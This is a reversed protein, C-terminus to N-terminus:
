KCASRRTRVKPGRWTRLWPKKRLPVTPASGYLPYSTSLSNILWMGRRRIFSFAWVAELLEPSSSEFNHQYEIGRVRVYARDGEIWWDEIDRAYGPRDADFFTWGHRRRLFAADGQRLASFWEALTSRLQAELNTAGVAFVPQRPPSHPRRPPTSSDSTTAPSGAAGAARLETEEWQKWWNDFQNEWQRIPLPKGRCHVCASAAGILLAGEFQCPASNQVPPLWTDIVAQLPASRLARLDGVFWDLRLATRAATLAWGKTFTPGCCWDAHKWGRFSRLSLPPPLQVTSPRVSPDTLDLSLAVATVGRLTLNVPHKLVRGENDARNSAYALRLEQRAPQWAWRTIPASHLLDILLRLSRPSLM